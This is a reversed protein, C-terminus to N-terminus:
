WHTINHDIVTSTQLSVLDAQVHFRVAAGIGVANRQQVPNQEAVGFCQADGSAANEASTAPRAIKPQKPNADTGAACAYTASRVFGCARVRISASSAEDCPTRV